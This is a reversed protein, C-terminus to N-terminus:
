AAARSALLEDNFDRGAAPAVVFVNDAGARKWADRALGGCLLARGDADLVRTASGGTPKRVKVKLPAMDRDVAVTVRVDGPWVFPPRAPDPNPADPDIRGYRDALVGGQLARLSLTAAAAGFTQGMAIAASLTSEIGEGVLWPGAPRDRWLIAAGPGDAGNQPGFMRKAPARHTKRSGDPSLYTVHVGGTPGSATEVRAIMAPLLIAVKGEFDWFAAPHFRLSALARAAIPGRIGRAYLYAAALSGAAPASERWLRAALKATGHAGPAPTAPAVKAAPAPKWTEGALEVAAERPSLSHLRAYLDVVDGGQGEAFCFYVGAAPDVSFAGDARKGASAGCLPCPGRLRRGARYLTIGGLIKGIDARRARDFLDSDLGSM